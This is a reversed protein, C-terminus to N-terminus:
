DGFTKAPALNVMPVMARKGVGQAQLGMEASAEKLWRPVRAIPQTPISANRGRILRCGWLRRM